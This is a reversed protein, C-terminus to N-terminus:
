REGCIERSATHRLSPASVLVVSVGLYYVPDCRTSRGSKLIRQRCVSEGIGPVKTCEWRRSWTYLVIMICFSVAWDCCFGVRGRESLIMSALLRALRWPGPGPGPGSGWRGLMQRWKMVNPLERPWGRIGMGTIELRSREGARPGGLGRQRLYM